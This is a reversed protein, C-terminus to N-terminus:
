GDEFAAFVRGGNADVLRETYDALQDKIEADRGTLAAERAARIARADVLEARAAVSGDRESPGAYEMVAIRNVSWGRAVLEGALREGAPPLFLKRHRVDSQHSDALREADDASIDEVGSDLRVFNADYVRPISDNRVATGRDFRQVQGAASERLVCDFAWAREFPNM